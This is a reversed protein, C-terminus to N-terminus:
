KGTTNLKFEKYINGEGFRWCKGEEVDEEEEEEEEVEYVTVGLWTYGGGKVVLRCGIVLKKVPLPPPPLPKEM